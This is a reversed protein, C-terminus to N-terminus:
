KVYNTDGGIAEIRGFFGFETDKSLIARGNRLEEYSISITDTYGPFQIESGCNECIVDVKASCDLENSTNCSSCHLMLSGGSIDFCHPNKKGSICCRGQGIYESAGKVPAKFLPFPIGLDDFTLSLSVEKSNMFSTLVNIKM